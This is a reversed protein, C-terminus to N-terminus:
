LSLTHEDEEVVDYFLDECSLTEKMHEGHPIKFICELKFFICLIKQFRPSQAQLVKVRRRYFECGFGLYDSCQVPELLPQRQSTSLLHTYCLGDRSLLFCVSHVKSLCCQPDKSSGCISPQARSKIFVRKSKEKECETGRCLNLGVEHHPCVHLPGLWWGKSNRLLRIPFQVVTELLFGLFGVQSCLNKSFNLIDMEPWELPLFLFSWYFSYSFFFRCDNM